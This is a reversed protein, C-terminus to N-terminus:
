ALGCVLDLFDEMSQCASQRMICELRAVARFGLWEEAQQRSIQGAMYKESVRQRFLEQIGADLAMSLVDRESLGMEEALFALREGFSLTTM